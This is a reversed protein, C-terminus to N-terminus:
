RRRRYLPNGAQRKLNRALDSRSTASLVSFSGPLRLQSALRQLGATESAVSGAWDVLVLYHPLASLGESEKRFMWASAIKDFGGLTRVFGQLDAADLDHASVAEAAVVSDHAQPDRALVLCRSRLAAVAAFEAGEAATRLYDDVSRLALEIVAHDLEMARQLREIGEAVQGRKLLLAGLRCQGLAHSPLQELARRYLPLADATPCHDDILGAYEIDEAPSRVDRAELEALRQRESERRQHGARWDQEVAQRWQRSFRDELQEVLEDTLLSEAAAASPKSQTPLVPAGQLAALRQPLTPHTDNWGAEDLLLWAPVGSHGRGHERLDASLRGFVQVPPYPQAHESQHVEPWFTRRLWDSALELRILASAMADADAVQVAVADAAYEHRRALVFSYADFYPAYWRFFLGFLHGASLGSGAIGDMLRYWSSRLRYIWGAFRGHDGHFHGFEHAIVAALERRDLLQLLPLGLILYQRQGWLGIGNPLYAAAANLEPHIIIGHLRGAGVQRRIREVEERLAPAEGAQLLHGDPLGFRFWLARLVVVGIGGLLLIPIAINPEAPPRVILLYLVLFVAVGLTLALALGMVAYGLVALLALKFRYRAPAQQAEQELREVLERRAQETLM